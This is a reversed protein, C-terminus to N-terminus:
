LLNASQRGVTMAHVVGDLDHEPAEKKILLVAVRFACVVLVPTYDYM